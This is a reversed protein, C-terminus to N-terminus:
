LSKKFCPHFLPHNKSYVHAPIRGGTTHLGRCPGQRMRTDLLALPCSLKVSERKEVDNYNEWRVEISEPPKGGGPEWSHTVPPPYERDEAM